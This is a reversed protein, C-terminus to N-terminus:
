LTQQEVRNRGNRKARYLADDAAKILERCEIRSSPIGGCVGFSVTLSLPEDSAPTEIALAEISQRCLEALSVADAMPVAQLVISFEEGGYRAVCDTERRAAGRLAKAIAMLCVDGVQHGYRDNLQKFNDIDAMILSIPVNYRKSRALERKVDDDFYRRNKLGTLPDITALQSLEKTYEEAKQKELRLQLQVMLLQSLFRQFIAACKLLGFFWVVQLGLLLFPTPQYHTAVGLFTGLVFPISFALYVRILYSYSIIAGTMLGSMIIILALLQRLDAHETLYFALLGWSSGIFLQIFLLARYWFQVSFLRQVRRYLLGAGIRTIGVFLYVSTFLHLNFLEISNWFALYLFGISIISSVFAPMSQEFSIDLAKEVVQEQTVSSM